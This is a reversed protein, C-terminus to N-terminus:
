AAWALPAYAVQARVDAPDLALAQCINVFSFPWDTADSAFWEDVERRLRRRRVEPESDVGWSARVADNLIALILRQESGRVALGPRVSQIASPRTGDGSLSWLSTM